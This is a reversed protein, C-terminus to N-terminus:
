KVPNNTEAPAGNLAQMIKNVYDQTEAIDPEAPPDGDVKKPGANYAALALRLDGKYRGLLQKLYQAGASVNQRADFPDAVNFQAATDPMLQMLGMAGKVSVACPDNASEQKVVANILAPNLHQAEAADKIAAETETTSAPQCDPNSPLIPAPSIWGTVFFSNTPADGVQAQVSVRQKAISTEMAQRASLQQDKASEGPPAVVTTAPKAVATTIPPAPSQAWLGGVSFLLVIRRSGHARPRLNKM